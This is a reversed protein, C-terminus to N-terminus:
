TFHNTVNHKIAKYMLSFVFGGLVLFLLVEIHFLFVNTVQLEALIQEQYGILEESPILTELFSVDEALSSPGQLTEPTDFGEELLSGELSEGTSEEILGEVPEPLELPFLGTM